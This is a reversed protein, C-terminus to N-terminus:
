IPSRWVGDRRLRRAWHVVVGQPVPSGLTLRYSVLLVAGRDVDRPLKAEDVDVRMRTPEPDLEVWVNRAQRIGDNRIRVTVGGASSRIPEASWRVAQNVQRNLMYVLLAIVVGLATLIVGTM